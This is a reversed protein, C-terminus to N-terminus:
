SLAEMSVREYVGPIPILQGAQTIVIPAPFLEAALLKNATQAYLFWGYITQAPDTDATPSFVWGGVPPPCRILYEGTAPDISVVTTGANKRAYGTFTPEVIDAITLSLSPTISTAFLGVQRNGADAFSGTDAALATALRLLTYQTPQMTFYGLIQTLLNSPMSPPPPIPPTGPIFEAEVNLSLAIELDESAEFISPTWVDLMLALDLDVDAVFTAM